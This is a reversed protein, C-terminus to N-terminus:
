KEVDFTYVKIVYGFRELSLVIHGKANSSWYAMMAQVPEITRENRLGSLRGLSLGDGLLM